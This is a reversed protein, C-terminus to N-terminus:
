RVNALADDIAPGLRRLVTKGHMREGWGSSILTSRLQGTVHLRARHEDLGEVTARMNQGWSTWTSGTQFLAVRQSDDVALLGMGDAEILALKLASWLRDASAPYDQMLIERRGM